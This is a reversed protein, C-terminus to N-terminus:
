RASLVLYDYVRWLPTPLVGSGWREWLGNPPHSILAFGREGFDYGGIAEASACAQNLLWVANSRPLHQVRQITAQDLSAVFQDCLDEEEYYVEWSARRRPVPEGVTPTVARLAMREEESMDWFSKPADFLAHPLIGWHHCAYIRTLDDFFAAPDRHYIAACKAPSAWGTELYLAGHTIAGDNHAPDLLGWAQFLLQELDALEQYAGELAAEDRLKKKKAFRRSLIVDTLSLGVHIHGDYRAKWGLQYHKGYLAVGTYIQKGSALTYGLDIFLGNHSDPLGEVIPELLAVSPEGEVDRSYFIDKKELRVQRISGSELMRKLMGIFVSSSDPTSSYVGISLLTGM